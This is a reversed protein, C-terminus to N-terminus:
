GNDAGQKAERMPIQWADFAARADEISRALRVPAGIGELRDIVAKQEDSLRSKEAKVELFHVRGNPGIVALDPVGALVGTWKLLAAEPKTRLGGNPISFIVADPAVLRAWAVISAQIKAEDNRAM